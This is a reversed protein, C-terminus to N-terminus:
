AEAGWGTLFRFESPWRGPAEPALAGAPPESHDDPDTGAVPVEIMGADLQGRRWRWAVRFAEWLTGAHAAEDRPPCQMAGPFFGDDQCLLRADTLLYYGLAPLHGHQQRHLEAYLALQLHRNANLEEAKYKLGAWKLDLLGCTHSETRGLVDVIGELPGGDFQGALGTEMAVTTIGAKRLLVALQWLSRCAVREVHQRHGLQGPLLFVAGEAALLAPMRAAIWREFEAATGTRWDPAGRAGSFLEEALRHLLQGKLRNGAEISAPVYARLGAKYGLVWAFPEHLFRRLSSFSEAEGDRPGLHAGSSLRWWRQRPPLPRRAQTTPTLRWDGTGGGRLWEAPSLVPLTRPDLRGRLHDWVPHPGAGDADAPPLVLVLRQRAQRIPRLWAEARWALAADVPVLEVGHRGLEALERATWPWPAPLAEVGCDGWVIRDAPAIVAAPDAAVGPAGLEAPGYRHAAGQRTVADLLRGLQIRSVPTEGAAHLTDLMAALELSQSQAARFLERRTEPLDPRSAQRGAWVGVRRSHAALVVAPAGTGPDYRDTVIWAALWADFTAAAADADAARALVRERLEAVRRQWPGSGIGPHSAVVRALGHGIFRPFPLVPHSLFELLKQPDLPEWLLELALPLVQLPPRWHSLRVAGTRPADVTEFADDYLGRQSQSILVTGVSPSSRLWEALARRALPAPAARLVVVSGDGDLRLPAAPSNGDGNRFARQVRALDSDPDSAAGDVREDVPQAELRLLIDRWLKPFLPLPDHLHVRHIGCDRSDLARFVAALREPLGPALATGALEEVAALDRLRASDGPAAHGSWGGLRWTDRWDLLVRAVALADTRLSASYFRRGDDVRRLRALYQAVRLPESAPVGSLGLRAELLGLLGAPGTAVQGLASRREVPRYGDLKLGLEIKM